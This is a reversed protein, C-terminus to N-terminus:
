DEQMLMKEEKQDLPPIEFKKSAAWDEEFIKSVANIVKRNTTIIGLERATDLAETQFKGSGLYIKEDDVIVVEAYIHYKENLVIKVGANTLFVQNPINPNSKGELGVSMMIVRVDIGAKAAGALAQALGKDTFDKQYILISKQASNMMELMATRQYDPGWVLPLYDPVIRKNEIDALFVKQMKQVLDSDVISLSFNRGPLVKVDKGRTEKDEESCENDLNNTGILAITGDVIIMGYDVHSFRESLPYIKVGQKKMKEQLSSSILGKELHYEKPQVQVKVDVGKKRAEILASIIKSNSLSYATLEITKEASKIAEIWPDTLCQSFIFVENGKWNLSVSEGKQGGFLYGTILVIGFFAYRTKKM